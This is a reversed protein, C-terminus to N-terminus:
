KGGGALASFALKLHKKFTKFRRRWTLLPIPLRKKQLFNRAERFSLKEIDAITLGNITGGEMLFKIKENKQCALISLVSVGINKVNDRYAGFKQVIKIYELASTKTIGMSKITKIFDGVAIIKKLRLLEEGMEFVFSAKKCLQNKETDKKTQGIKYESLLDNLRNREGEPNFATGTNPVM